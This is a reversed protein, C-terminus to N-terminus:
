PVIHCNKETGEFDARVIIRREPNIEYIIICPPTYGSASAYRYELNGNSLMKKSLLRARGNELFGLEDNLTLGVYLQLNNKFNEHPTVTTCGVFLYVFLLVTAVSRM